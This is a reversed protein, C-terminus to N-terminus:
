ARKRLVMLLHRRNSVLNILWFGLCSDRRVFAVGDMYWGLPVVPKSPHAKVVEHDTYLSLGM